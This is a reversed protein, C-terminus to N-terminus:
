ASHIGGATNTEVLWEGVRRLADCDNLGRTPHLLVFHEVLEGRRSGFQEAGFVADDVALWHKLQKSYAYRSIVYTRDTGNLIYGVRSKIHRTTDVVRRALEPPMLSVVDGQSLTMLWSTTLVLQVSPYPDLLEILLPAFEFLPRGTNLSIRRNEDMSARGVHLTGDFDLFLTPTENVSELSPHEVDDVTHVNARAVRRESMQIVSAGVNTNADTRFTNRRM